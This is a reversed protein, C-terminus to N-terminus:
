LEDHPISADELPPPQSPENAPEGEQAGPTASEEVSSSTPTASPAASKTKKPKPVKRKVLRQLHTELTKARAKMETTSIVPDENMKVSKQKEVWENLWSEHDKLARGLVDLEQKTWKSPLGAEEEATLNLRADNLFLRTSWNWM